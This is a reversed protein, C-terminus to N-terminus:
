DKRTPVLCNTQPQLSSSPTTLSRSVNRILSIGFDATSQFGFTHKLKREDKKAVNFLDIVSSSRFETCLTTQSGLMLFICTFKPLDTEDLIRITKGKSCLYGLYNTTSFM